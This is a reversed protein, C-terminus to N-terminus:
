VSHVNSELPLSIDNSFTAVRLSSFIWLYLFEDRTLNLLIDFSALLKTGKHNGGKLIIPDGGDPSDHFWALLDSYHMIEGVRM